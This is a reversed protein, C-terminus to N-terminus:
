SKGVTVQLLQEPKILDDFAAKIDKTSVNEIQAVYTDLYNDPLKYFAIRLLMAAISSNSALSLSFSGALYQKAEVLEKESPGNKLFNNLTTQTITLAENVQTTKTSLSIIFPGNAPMPIFQSNVNYSLGKKERIETALQSVMSGGGLIYNGVQIPFYNPNQHNIGLQGIRLITQSSPFIVTIKEPSKLPDAVAIPPVPEGKPLTGVISDALQRATKQDIAGVMVIIANSGVFYHKYFDRPQWSQINRVSDQTGNIPHAYPHNVYLKNFFAMNAVEDPSEETQAVLALLQNKERYFAEQRFQPKNLILSFIKSAQSLAEDSTLTRLHFLAMDRSNEANFQAGTQDLAEAVQTADLNGDGQNLLNTTLASLGFYKGDYASGAAFAVYIDLMPVEDAQYFVVKGGNDTNWKKTKLPLAIAQATLLGLIITLIISHKMKMPKM